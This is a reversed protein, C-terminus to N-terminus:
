LVKAMSTPWRVLCSPRSRDIPALPGCIRAITSTSATITPNIADMTPNNPPMPTAQNSLCSKLLAPSPVNGSPGNCIRGRVMTTTTMRRGTISRNM